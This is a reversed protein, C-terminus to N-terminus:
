NGVQVESEVSLQQQSLMKKENLYEYTLCASHWRKTIIDNQIEFWLRTHTHTCIFGGWRCSLFGSHKTPLAVYKTESIMMIWSFCSKFVFIVGKLHNKFESHGNTVCFFSSTPDTDSNHWNTTGTYIKGIPFYLFCFISLSFCIGVGIVDAISM